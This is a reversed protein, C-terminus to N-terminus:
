FLNTYLRMGASPAWDLSYRTRQTDRTGRLCRSAARVLTFSLRSRVFGCVQSYQRNWKAALRSALRKRAATVEEGEMGDVSYVLPTFHMNAEKCAEGYKDKKDKEQKKLVKKPDQTRYSRADTDTVRIDFIATTGRSWFGHVAVDGRLEQVDQGDPNQYKPINPEDSVASPTLAQSCLKHWEAAVEEHRSHVLGGKKCQFAHGVTFRATKCGSCFSPLGIPDLGHRIRLSDRFETCSLATGYDQSPTATLWAGTERTRAIRRKEFPPAADIIPELLSEMVVAQVTKHDRLIRSSNAGYEIANMEEGSKLSSSIEETMGRSIMFNRQSHLLPDPIGLGALRVPLRTLARDPAESDFLAPLFDTAIADEIPNFHTAIDPVVRQLYTWETQLSKVLGAYATQPYRTAVKALTKVGETWTEIQPRLWEDRSADTGIFGGIYRSGEKHQFDFNSLMDRARERDEPRCIFISKSPEPYYGRSPGHLLLLQMATAIGTVPGAMACDDAYWPQVVNPVKERLYKALPVLAVGYLVMSLPDGQTVGERSQLIACDKRDRRVVLQASHRYCNFSFRSGAAWLHRVTWLMSKRNLENFGNRADICLTGHPDLPNYPPRDDVFDDDSSYGHNDTDVSPDNSPVPSPNRRPDVSPAPSPDRRTNISPPQSPDGRPHQSPPQSRTTSPSLSPDISETWNPNESSKSRTRRPFVTRPKRPTKTPNETPAPRPNQSISQNARKRVRFSEARRRSKASPARNSRFGRIRRIRRPRGDDRNRSFDVEESWTVSRASSCDSDPENDLDEDGPEANSVSSDTDSWEDEDEDEDEGDLSEEPHARNYADDAETRADRIVHVAGEIGAKIGACLNYNGCSSTARSGVVRLICKAMLRRYTEGIGLPRTGPQKDLAVLRCAMLARYAAWPPNSNALWTAFAALESRLEGSTQGFGLCWAKLAVSDPGGPGAAGSLKAAVEEVTDSSIILPITTPVKPYEEFAGGPGGISEPERLPPHKSELVELVPTGSKSCIDDPSLAGGGGRSTLSRCAARLHGNLVKTNYNRYTEEETKPGNGTGRLSAEVEMDGILAAFKEEDWLIMRTEIRKRIDKAATIGNAKYLVVAPFVIVREFNWKRERVGRILFSLKRIFLKGIRGQPPKYWIPRQQVARKWYRQWKADIGIGIGGDLHTGDNHHTHDGYIENLLADARTEKYDFLDAGDEPSLIVHEAKDDEDDDDGAEDHDNANADDNDESDDEAINEANDESNDEAYEDVEDENEDHEGEDETRDHREEDRYDEETVDFGADDDDDDDADQSEDNMSDTIDENDLSDFADGGDNADDVTENNDATDDQTSTTTPDDEDVPEPIDPM